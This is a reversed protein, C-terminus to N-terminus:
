KSYLRLEYRCLSGDDDVDWTSGLHQDLLSLIWESSCLKNRADQVRQDKARKAKIRPLSEKFVEYRPQVHRYFDQFLTRLEEIIDACPTEVFMDIDGPTIPVGQLFSFKGLGGRVLGDSGVDSHMDFVYQMDATMDMKRPSRCKAIEYVLVWFFSELDDSVEHPRFSPDLLRWTSIFQWTGTRSHQRAKEEVGKTVRKSLDWDILIGCGDEGILINGASVDRHLMGTREYAASH